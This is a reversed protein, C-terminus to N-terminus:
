ADEEARVSGPTTGTWRRYARFLASPDAFGVKAAVEAITNGARLYELARARRLDDVIDSYKVGRQSLARQLSRTSMALQAAIQAIETAGNDLGRAVADRIKLMTPDSDPPVMEALRSELTKALSGMATVSKTEMWKSAFVLQDDPADFGVPAAFWEAHKTTEGPSGHAFQVRIPKWEPGIAQRAREAILGLSLEVWFRNADHPPDRQLVIATEKGRAEVTLRVRQSVVAYYRGVLDLAAGWTESTFLAYDLPGLSGPPLNAAITLGITPDGLVRAGEELVSDALQGAVYGQHEPPDAVQVGLRHLVRVAARVIPASVGLQRGARAV